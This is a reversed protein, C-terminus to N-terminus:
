KREALIREVDSRKAGCKKCQESTPPHEKIHTIRGSKDRKV